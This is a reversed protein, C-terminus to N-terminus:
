SAERGLGAMEIKWLYFKAIFELQNVSRMLRKYGGM